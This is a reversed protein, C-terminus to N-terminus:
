GEHLCTSSSISTAPACTPGPAPETRAKSVPKPGPIPFEPQQAVAITAACFVALVLLASRMMTRLEVPRPLAYLQDGQPDDGARRASQQGRDAFARDRSGAQQAIAESRARHRTREARRRPSGAQDLAARRHRAFGPEGREVSVEGRAAAH